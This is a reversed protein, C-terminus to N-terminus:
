DIYDVNPYLYVVSLLVRYKIEKRCIFNINDVKRNNMSTFATFGNTVVLMAHM